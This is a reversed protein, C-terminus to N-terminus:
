QAGSKRLGNRWLLSLLATLLATIRLNRYVADDTRYVIGAVDIKRTYCAACTMGLSKTNGFNNITFSVPFNLKDLEVVYNAGKTKPTFNKAYVIRVLRGKASM